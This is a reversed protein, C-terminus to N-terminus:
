EELLNNIFRDEPTGYYQTQESLKGVGMSDSIRSNSNGMLHAAKEFTNIEDQTKNLFTDFHEELDEAPFSGLKWLQFTVAKAAQVRDLEAELEAVKDLADNKESFEERLAAAATKLLNALKNM